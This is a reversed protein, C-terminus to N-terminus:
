ILIYLAVLIRLFFITSISVIFMFVGSKTKGMYFRHAALWGLFVCLLLATLKNKSTYGEPYKLERQSCLPFGKKDTFTGNHIKAIDFVWLVLCGLLLLISVNIITGLVLFRPLDWASLLIFFFLLVCRFIGDLKKGVYFHHMGFLGFLICLLFAKLKNKPTYGIPYGFTKGNEIKRILKTAPKVATSVHAADQKVAGGVKAGCSACFAAAEQVEKGCNVCFM